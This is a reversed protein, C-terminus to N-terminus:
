TIKLFLIWSDAVLTRRIWRLGLVSWVTFSYLLVDLLIECVGLCDLLWTWRKDNWHMIRQLKLEWFKWVNQPQCQNLHVYLLLNWDVTVTPSRYFTLVRMGGTELWYCTKFVNHFTVKATWSSLDASKRKIVLEMIIEWCKNTQRIIIPPLIPTHWQLVWEACSNQIIHHKQFVLGLATCCGFLRCHSM